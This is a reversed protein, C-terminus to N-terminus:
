KPPGVRKTALKTFKEKEGRFPNELFYSNKGNPIKKRKGSSPRTRKLVYHSRLRVVCFSIQKGGLVAFEGM